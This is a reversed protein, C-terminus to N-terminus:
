FPVDSELDAFHSAPKAPYVRICPTLKPGVYTSEPRLEIQKGTWQSADKTGLLEAIVRSVTVGAVFKKDIAEGKRTAITLVLKPKAESGQGLIERSAGTITVTHPRDKLDAASLYKSPYVDDISLSM